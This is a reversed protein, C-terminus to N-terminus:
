LPKQTPIGVRRPFRHRTPHIKRLYICNRISNSIPTTFNEIREIEGGLETAADQLIKTEEDQWHGRYLLAIGGIKLLPLSYEAAVTATGVARVLALDYLERYQKDQGIAEARGILTKVNKLQLNNILEDLFNIKKRTSDLLTVEIANSYIALPIGPFGAGTGIDIALNSRQLDILKEGDLYIPSALSDWLHKEWFDMRDIIRTLNFQTNGRLIEAYLSQFKQQQLETPQWKLTKQWVENMTPLLKIEECNKM